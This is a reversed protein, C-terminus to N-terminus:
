EASSEAGSKETETEAEAETVESTEEPTEKIGTVTALTFNVHPPLEVNEGLPIDKVHISDGINLNTIDLEIANPIQFPLCLVEVERRIIQFMGGQEVGVCKGRTTVPIKVKIKRNMDIQYFDIHLISHSLPDSQIEKIMAPVASSSGDDLKLNFVMQSINQNKIALEFDHLFLSVSVSDNEPGYLVAPIQGNRRLVRAPGNGKSKRISTKLEHLEL